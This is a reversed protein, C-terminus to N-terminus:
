GGNAAIVNCNLEHLTPGASLPLTPDAAPGAFVTSLPGTENADEAHVDYCTGHKWPGDFAVARAIADDRDEDLLWGKSVEHNAWDRVKQVYDAHTKYLSKIKDSTWARHHGWLPCDGTEARNLAVPVEIFPHRLGGVALGNADRVIDGNEDRKIRPASPPLTGSKFYREVWHSLARASHDASGRNVSCAVNVADPVGATADDRQLEAWIYNWWAAPAHSTGAEQWLVYKGTDPDDASQNEENLHFIPVTFDEFPGGGRTIVYADVGGRNYGENIFDTLQSASQSAGNAVVHEAEMGDMPDVPRPSLITTRNHSPDRLAEIAQSFIDAAFTDGPHVLTAYRKPDWGKLTTPGCCVGALQASVGVYGVGHRMLYPGAVPWTTELDNQGTVNLWEVLVTGSFDKPDHPLRVFMRSKYPATRGSTLDTATGGYFYEREVYDYGPGQLDYLTHNWMYGKLGGEVPGEVAPNAVGAAAATATACITSAVALVVARRFGQLM